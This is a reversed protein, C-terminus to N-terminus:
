NEYIDEIDTVNFGRTPVRSAALYGIYTTFTFIKLAYVNFVTKSVRYM